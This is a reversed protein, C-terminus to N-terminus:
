QSGQYEQSLPRTPASDDRPPVGPLGPRRGAQTALEEETAWPVTILGEADVQVQGRWWGRESVPALQQHDVLQRLQRGSSRQESALLKATPPIVALGVLLMSLIWFVEAGTQVSGISYLNPAISQTAGGMMLTIALVSDFPMGIVGLVVRVFPHYRRGGIFDPSLVPWWTLCGFVLFGVNVLDMFAPHAMAYVIGGDLFFWFMIGYNGLGAVLPHVIWKTPRARLVRLVRVKTARRATQMFLTVPAALALLAPAAIMLALHQIIHVTFVSGAYVPVGTQWALALMAVGGVFALTRYRPWVRGRRALRQVAQLYWGLLALEGALTAVTWPGTSVRSLVLWIAKWGFPPLSPAHPM